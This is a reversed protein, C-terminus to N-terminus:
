FLHNVVFLYIIYFYKNSIIRAYHKIFRGVMCEYDNIVVSSDYFHYFIDFRNGKLLLHLKFIALYELLFFQLYVENLKYILKALVSTKGSGQRGVIL